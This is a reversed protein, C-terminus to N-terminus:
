VLTVPSPPGKRYNRDITAHEQGIVTKHDSERRRSNERVREESKTRITIIESIQVSMAATGAITIDGRVDDIILQGPGTADFIYSSTAVHRNYGERRIEQGSLPFLIAMLLLVKTGRHVM